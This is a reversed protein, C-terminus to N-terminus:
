NQIATRTILQFLSKIIFWTKNLPAFWPDWCPPKHLGISSCGVNTGGVFRCLSLGTLTFDFSLFSFILCFSFQLCCHYRVLVFWHGSAKFINDDLIQSLNCTRTTQSKGTKEQPINKKLWWRKLLVPVSWIICSNVTLAGTVVMPCPWPWM